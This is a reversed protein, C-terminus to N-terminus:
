ANDTLSKLEPLSRQLDSILESTHLYPTDEGLLRLLIHKLQASLALEDMWDAEAADRGPDFRSYLMFLMLEGVDALDSPISAPRPMGDRGAKSHPHGSPLPSGLPAALGFDILYLEGGSIIVNPIRIDLHVYGREHVHQVRELLTLTWRVTDQEGFTQGEGFILDELTRGEVYDTVLWCSRQERFFGRCAPIFPHELAQLVDRECALLQQGIGKKSPKAQKVAVDQEELRDKCRYTIGYSGTGLPSIVSYRGALVSGEELPYDAWAQLFNKIYNYM